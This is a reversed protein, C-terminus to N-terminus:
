HITQFIIIFSVFGDLCASLFDNLLVQKRNLQHEPVTTELLRVLKRIIRHPHEKKCKTITTSNNKLHSHYKFDDGHAM